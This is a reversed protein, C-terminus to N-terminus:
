DDGAIVVKDRHLDRLMNSLSKWVGLQYRDFIAAMERKKFARTFHAVREVGEKLSTSSSLQRAVDAWTAAYCASSGLSGPPGEAGRAKLVVPDLQKSAQSGAGAGNDPQAAGM